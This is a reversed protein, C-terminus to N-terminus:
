FSRSSLVVVRVRMFARDYRIAGFRRFGHKEEEAMSLAFNVGSRLANPLTM